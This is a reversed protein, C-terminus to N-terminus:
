TSAEFGASIQTRKRGSVEYAWDNTLGVEGIEYAAIIIRQDEVMEYNKSTFFAFKGVKAHRMPIPEGKRNGKQYSGANFRWPSRVFMASESCPYDEESLDIERDDNNRDLNRCPCEDQSCWNGGQRTNWARGEANCPGEFDGM